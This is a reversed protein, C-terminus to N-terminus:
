SHKPVGTEPFRLPSVGYVARFARRFSNGDSFGLADAVELPDVGGMLMRRAVVMREWQMWQRPTLGVDRLFIERFYAEHLGLEDCVGGVRYGQQMALRELCDHVVRGFALVRWRYESRAIIM